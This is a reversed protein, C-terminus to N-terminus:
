LSSEQTPLTPIALCPLRWTAKGSLNTSIIIEEFPLNLPVDQRIGLPVIELKGGCLASIAM